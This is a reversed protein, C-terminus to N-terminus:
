YRNIEEGPYKLGIQRRVEDLTQMIAISQSPPLIDGSSKGTQVLRELEMAQYEMGRTKLPHEFREIVRGDNGFVTFSSATYWVSDIEIRGQSGIVVATNAGRVNSASHTVAKRGDDYSLIVTASQDVGTDTFTAGAEIRSPPGFLDWAFSIPYIGLDLLAGGGLEPANIRHKPDSPLCQTHDAILTTVEGITGARIIERLRVMHPLWRTWMAELVVLGRNEAVAVVESAELANLTFPKEVLVHKGSQLAMLANEAHFPHPTSVYIADVDSCDALEQYSAFSLGIGHKAAFAGGAEHSRSGVATVHHGTAILDKAFSNAISGTGLIGWRLKTSM